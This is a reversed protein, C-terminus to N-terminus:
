VGVVSQGGISANDVNTLGDYCRAGQLQGQVADKFFPKVRLELIDLFSFRLPQLNADICFFCQTPLTEYSQGDFHTTINTQGSIRHSTLLAVACLGGLLVFLSIKRHFHVTSM